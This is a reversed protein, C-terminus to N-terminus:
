FRAGVRISYTTLIEFLSRATQRIAKNHLGLPLALAQKTLPSTRTPELGVQM